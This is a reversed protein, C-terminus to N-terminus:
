ESYRLHLKVLEKKTPLKFDKVIKDIKESYYVMNFEHREPAYMRVVAVGASTFNVRVVANVDNKEWVLYTEKHCYQAFKYVPNKKVWKILGRIQKDNFAESVQLITELSELGEEDYRHTSTSSDRGDHYLTIEFSGLKECDIHFKWKGNKIERINPGNM